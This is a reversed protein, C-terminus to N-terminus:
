QQQCQQRKSTALLYWHKVVWQCIYVQCVYTAGTTSNAVGVAHRVKQQGRKSQSSVLPAQNDACCPRNESRGHWCCCEQITMNFCENCAHFSLLRCGMSYRYGFSTININCTLCIKVTKHSLSNSRAIGWLTVFGGCRAEWWLVAHQLWWCGSVGVAVDGDCVQM